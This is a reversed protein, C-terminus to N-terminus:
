ACERRNRWSTPFINRGIILEIDIFRGIDMLLQGILCEGIGCEETMYPRLLWAIERNSLLTEDRDSEDGIISYAKM